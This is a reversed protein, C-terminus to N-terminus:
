QSVVVVVVLVVAVVIVVIRVVVLGTPGLFSVRRCAPYSAAPIHAFSTAPSEFCRTISKKSPFVLPIMTVLHPVIIVSHSPML